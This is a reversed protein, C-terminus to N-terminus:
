CSKQRNGKPRGEDPLRRQQHLEKVEKRREKMRIRTEQSRKEKWRENRWRENRWQCMTRSRTKQGRKEKCVCMIRRLGKQQSREKKKREKDGEAANKIFSKLLGAKKKPMAKTKVRRPRWKTTRLSAWRKRAQQKRKERYKNM